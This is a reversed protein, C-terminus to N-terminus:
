SLPVQIDGQLEVAVHLIAQEDDPSYSQFIEQKEGSYLLTNYGGCVRYIEAFPTMGQSYTNPLCRSNYCCVDAPITNITITKLQRPRASPRFGDLYVKAFYRVYRLCVDFSILHCQLWPCLTCFSLLLLSESDNFRRQCANTVGWNTTSRKIAFFNLAETAQLPTLLQYIALDLWRICCAATCWSLQLSLEQGGKALRSCNSRKCGDKTSCVCRLVCVCVCVGIYSVIM